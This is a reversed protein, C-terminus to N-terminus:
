FGGTTQAAKAWRRRVADANELEDLQAQAVALAAGLRPIWRHELARLRQRTLATEREVVDVARRAAAYEAGAPVAARVAAEACVLASSGPSVDDPHRDPLVCEVATPYRLGMLNTWTYSATASPPLAALRLGRDGGLAGARDLWRQAEMARHHWRKASEDALRLLRDREASLMALKRRLLDAASDAAALRRRLVLAGARGPPVRLATM